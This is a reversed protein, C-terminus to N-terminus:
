SRRIEKFLNIRSKRQFMKERVNDRRNHSRIADKKFLNTKKKEDRRVM